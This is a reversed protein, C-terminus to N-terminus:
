GTPQSEGTLEAMLEAVPMIRDVRGVNMGATFLPNEEDDNYGVAALLGNCICFAKTPDDRAVCGGYALIYGKDCNVPRANNLQDQWMPSFRIVRFPFGCPSGPDITVYLDDATAKIVAEKFAPSADSEETALFRTGMQVASAGAALWSKIDEHTYVGGAVIVPFGGHAAAAELVPPLLRELQNEPAEIEERTKWGLHGGALPGELVAAAPRVGHREWRRCILELARASSVIPVLGTDSKPDHERAIAALTMPLGAGSFIFDAKGDLAGKIREEYYSGPTVMINMGCIGGADRTAEVEYATAARTKLKLGTRRKIIRDLAISSLIGLGGLKSVAGSLRLQSVGIGMGGQVIPYRIRRGAIEIPALM